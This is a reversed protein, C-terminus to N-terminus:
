AVLSWLTALAAVAFALHQLLMAAARLPTRGDHGLTWAHGLRAALFVVAVGWGLWAPLGALGLGLVTLLALPAYEAFNGHRRIRTRLVKDDADGFSVGGLAVRRASVALGLGAIMLAFVAALALFPALAPSTM